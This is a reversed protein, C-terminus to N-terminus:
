ITIPRAAYAAVRLTVGRDSGLSQCTSGSHQRGAIIIQGATPTDLLALLHMLTSKGSGSKGVIAVVEGRAITIDIGKLATFASEGKGYTKTVDSAEILVPM